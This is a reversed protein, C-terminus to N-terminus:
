RPTRLLIGSLDLQPDGVHGFETTQDTAPIKVPLQKRGVESEGLTPKTSRFITEDSGMGFGIGSLGGLAGSSNGSHSTRYRHDKFMACSCVFVWEPAAEAGPQPRKAEGKINIPFSCSHVGAM